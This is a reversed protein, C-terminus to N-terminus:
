AGAIKEFGGWIMRKGDFPMGNAFLDIWRQDTEMAAMCAEATAKDPWVIWSLAVTEDETKQVAMPFSTLKGDPVDTGWCEMWDLAGFEQFLPWCARAHEIYTQKNGTPVPAAFGWVFAM